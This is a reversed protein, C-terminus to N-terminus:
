RSSCCGGRSGDHGRRCLRIQRPCQQRTAVHQHVAAFCGADLWEAANLRRQSCCVYRDHVHLHDDALTTLGGVLLVYEPRRRRRGLPDSRGPHIHGVERVVVGHVVAGVCQDVRDVDELGVAHYREARARGAAIRVPMPHDLHAGTHANREHAGRHHHREPKRSGLGTRANRRRVLAVAHEGVYPYSRALGVHHDGHEMPADLAHGTRLTALAVEGELQQVVTGVGDDAVVGVHQLWDHEVVALEHGVREAVEHPVVPRADGTVGAHQLDVEVTGLDHAPREVRVQEVDVSRGHRGNFASPDIPDVVDHRAVAGSM